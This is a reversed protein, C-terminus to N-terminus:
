PMTFLAAMLEIGYWLDALRLNEDPAHQSNDFNVIPVIVIPQGLVQEFQFLPLSGGLTPMLVLDEASSARRANEIVQRAFPSDVPTRVAVYGPDYTIKVIRGYKQRTASDPDQHVVHYGQAALHAEIVPPFDEPKKGKALRIDFNAIAKAPVVNRANPGAAASQMGKVNLSSIMLRELLNANGAETEALGLEARTERDFDPVAAIVQREQEGIEATGRHFDKILVNGDRDKMSAILEALRQAPNPAWNGYHGSHLERVAGYVTLEFGFYGRIGFVLQPRRSQHTPGDCILWGDIDALLARNQSLYQELHTSGAEEEGELFFRLNAGHKLGAAQLADLAALIAPIPGKDDSASRAYIRWEPDVQDGKKPFPIKVGGDALAKSYLTPEFPPGSQWEADDVPQGDYHVYVGYTRKAGPADLEGYVVPPVEPALTLLRTKVGRAALEGAIWEANAALQAPASRYAVNPLALLRAYSALIEAEHGKRFARAAAVAPDLEPPAAWAAAALFSALFVYAFSPRRRM